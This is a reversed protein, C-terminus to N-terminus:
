LSHHINYFNCFVLRLVFWSVNLVSFANFCLLGFGIFNAPCSLAVPCPQVSSSSSPPSSSSLSPGGHVQSFLLVKVQGQLAAWTELSLDLTPHLWLFLVGIQGGM